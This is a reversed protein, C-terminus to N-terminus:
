AVKDLDVQQEADFTDVYRPINLNYDNEEVVSLEAVRSFKEISERQRYTRIIRIKKVGPIIDSAPSNGFNRPTAVDKYRAHIEM